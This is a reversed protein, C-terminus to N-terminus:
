HQYGLYLGYLCYLEFLGLAMALAIAKPNNFFLIMM